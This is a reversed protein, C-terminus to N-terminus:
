KIIRNLMNFFWGAVGGVIASLGAVKGKLGNLSKSIIGIKKDQEENKKEHKLLTGNIRKVDNMIVAVCKDIRHLTEQQSDLKESIKKYTM